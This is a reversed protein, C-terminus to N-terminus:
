NYRQRAHLVTLTAKQKRPCSRGRIIDPSTKSGIKSLPNWRKLWHCITWCRVGQENASEVLNVPIKNKPLGRLLHWYNSFCLNHKHILLFFIQQSVSYFRILNFTQVNRQMEIGMKHLAQSEHYLPKKNICKGGKFSRLPKLYVQWIQSTDSWTTAILKKTSNSFPPM